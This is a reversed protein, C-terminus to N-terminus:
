SVDHVNLERQALQNEFFVWGGLYLFFVFFSQTFHIYNQEFIDHKPM